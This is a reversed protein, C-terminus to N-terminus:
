EKRYNILNKENLPAPTCNNHVNAFRDSVKRIHFTMEERGHTGIYFRLKEILKKHVLILFITSKHGTINYEVVGPVIKTKYRKYYRRSRDEFNGIPADIYFHSHGRLNKNICINM